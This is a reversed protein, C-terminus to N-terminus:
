KNHKRENIYIIMDGTFLPFKIKKRIQMNRKFNRGLVSTPDKLMISFLLPTFAHRSEIKSHFCKKRTLREKIIILKILRRLSGVKPKMSIEKM